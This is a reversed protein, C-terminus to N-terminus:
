HDSCAAVLCFMICSYVKLKWPPETGEPLEQEDMHWGLKWQPIETAEFTTEKNNPRVVTTPFAGPSQDQVKM